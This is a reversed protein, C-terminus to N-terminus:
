YYGNDMLWFLVEKVYSLSNFSLGGDEFFISFSYKPDDYPYFGSIWAHSHEYEGKKNLAGFEATGTKIAVEQPLDRLTGAGGIGHVVSWMGEKVIDLSKASVINERIHDYELEEVNGDEDISKIALHPRHLIGGNAIAAVWNAMQIPTVLTIGQGIVSNCSDGEPYWIPDLWYSGHEALYIKNEPSPLRGTMEGPIDIGTYQGIGFAELYPVLKNMDWDRIVECFFINSSKALASVVNLPGYSHNGYEIFPAGSSFTYGQRSTYITSTTIAKADLASAAVVAKFTSGPPIQAAISRNLLPVEEDELLINYEAQSIGGIFQNIDYGPYSVMSLIEGTNVDEIVASAGRAGNKTVANKLIEYIQNQAELDISLYLSKGSIEPVITYSSGTISHGLANVETAQKGNQGALLENYYREIGLKGVIDNPSIYDNEEVDTESANGVYGLIHSFSQPYIYNRKSEDELIVGILEEGKSKINIAMDNDIDRALLIRSLYPNDTYISYVKEYISTYKSEDESILSWKDGLVEELINSVEKLRLEDIELQPNLFVDINLYVNVAPINEVLKEGDRDFVIGRYAPVTNIRISNNLSRENMEEGQVIQLKALSVFLVSFLVLSFIFIYLFNWASINESNEQHLINLIKERKNLKSARMESVKPKKFSKKELKKDFILEKSM